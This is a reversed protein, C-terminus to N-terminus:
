NIYSDKKNFNINSFKINSKENGFIIIIFILMFYTLLDPFRIFMHYNYYSGINFCILLVSFDYIKRYQNKIKSTCNFKYYLLICIFLFIKLIAIMVLNIERYENISGSYLKTKGLLDSFYSLSALTALKQIVYQSLFSWLIIFINIIKSSYKNYLFLLLRLLILFIVVQHM